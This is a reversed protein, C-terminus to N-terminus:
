YVVIRCNIKILMIKLVPDHVYIQSKSNVHLLKFAKPPVRMGSVTFANLIRLSSGSVTKVTTVPSPTRVSSEAQHESTVGVFQVVM